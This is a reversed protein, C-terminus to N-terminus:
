PFANGHEFNTLFLLIGGTRDFHKQSVSGGLFYFFLICVVGWSFLFFLVGGTQDIKNQGVSGWSFQKNKLFPAKPLLEKPFHAVTNLILYSCCFAGPGILIRKVWVVGLFISFCFVCWRRSFLFFCFAGQKPLHM